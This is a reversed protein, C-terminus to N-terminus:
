NTGGDLGFLSLAVVLRKMLIDTTIKIGRMYSRVTLFACVFTTSFRSTTPLIQLPYWLGITLFNRIGFGRRFQM